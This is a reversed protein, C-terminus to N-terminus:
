AWAASGLFEGEPTKISFSDEYADEGLQYTTSFRGLDAGAEVMPEEGYTVVPMAQGEPLQSKQGPRRQLWARVGLVGLVM